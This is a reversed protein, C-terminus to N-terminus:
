IPDQLLRVGDSRAFSVNGEEQSDGLRTGNATHLCQSSEMGTESWDTVLSHLAAIPWVQISRGDCSWPCLQSPCQLFSSFAFACVCPCMSIFPSLHVPGASPSEPLVMLETHKTSVASNFCFSTLSLPGPATPHSQRVKLLVTRPSDSEVLSM